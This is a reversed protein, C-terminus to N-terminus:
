HCLLTWSCLDSQYVLVFHCPLCLSLHVTFMILVFSFASFRITSIRDMDTNYYHESAKTSLLSAFITSPEADPLKVLSQKYIEHDACMDAYLFLNSASLIRLDTALAESGCLALSVANYPCNGDGTVHVAKKDQFSSPLLAQALTDVTYDMKAFLDQYTPNCQNLKSEHYKVLLKITNIDAANIANQM